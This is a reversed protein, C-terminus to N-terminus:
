PATPALQPRVNVRLLAEPNLVLPLGYWGAYIRVGLPDTRLKAYAYHGRVERVLSTADEASAFVEGAPLLVRGEAWGLVRRMSREEPLVLAADEPWYSTVQGGEPKYTGDTFHWDLGALGAWQSARGHSQGQLIQRGLAEKAFGKIEANRVLAGEIREDALVLGARQGAGAKYRRKLRQFERSRLRAQPDTWDLSQFEPVGFDVEFSLESGAVRQPDVQIKGLLAGCALYEKTNQVLNTLDLLEDAIVAEADASDQGPARNFFLASGPLDKYVKISVMVSSRRKRGLRRAQTHPSDVGTVPAFHRGFVVEEWSVVHGEPFIPKAHREFLDTCARNESQQAFRKVLGSLTDTSLLDEIPTATM